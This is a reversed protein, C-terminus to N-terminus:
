AAMIRQMNEPTFFTERPLMGQNALYFAHTDAPRDRLKQRLLMAEAPMPKFQALHLNQRFQEMSAANRQAEYGALAAELDGGASLGSALADVLFDADRLADCIGLALYPDKHCGADGVLAWGPGFPKRFFNPLDTAGYFREVRRADATLAALAPIDRVVAMFAAEVNTRVENLEAAPWAMFIAFLNDNTPFAFIVRRNHVFVSLADSPVDSWYSFYWCTVPATVEYTPAAVAQALRSNRGDAGITITATESVLAGSRQDRGRIGTIREGDSSFEEVTFGDRLEIGAAVAADVLVKDFQSRRPGIGMAVGEVALDHGTLAFDGFDTTMTTVAPCNTATIRELLGWRALRQPGHRHIFHGHPIDKPFVARDVLLVKYGQRGLLMATSAGACRAGVVIADYM